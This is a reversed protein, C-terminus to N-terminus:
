TIDFICFCLCGDGALSSQYNEPSENLSQELDEWLCALCFPLNQLILSKAANGVDRSECLQPWELEWCLGPTTGVYSPLGAGLLSLCCGLLQGWELCALGDGTGQRQSARSASGLQGM